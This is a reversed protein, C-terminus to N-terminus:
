FALCFLSLCYFFCRLCRTYELPPLLRVHPQHKASEIFSNPSQSFERWELASFGRFLLCFIGSFATRCHDNVVHPTYVARVM